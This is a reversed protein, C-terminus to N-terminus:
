LQRNIKYVYEEYQGTSHNFFVMLSSYKGKRLSQIIDIEADLAFDKILFRQDGSQDTNAFQEIYPGWEKLNYSLHLFSVMKLFMVYHM